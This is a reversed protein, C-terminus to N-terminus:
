FKLRNTATPGFCETLILGILNVLLCYYRARDTRNYARSRRELSFSIVILSGGFMIGSSRKIFVILSRRTLNHYIQLHNSHFGRRSAEPTDSSRRTVSRFSFPAGIRPRHEAVLTVCAM